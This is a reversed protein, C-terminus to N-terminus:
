GEQFGEGIELTGSFHNSLGFCSELHTGSLFLSLPGFFFSRLATLVVLYRKRRGGGFGGSKGYKYSGLHNEYVNLWM